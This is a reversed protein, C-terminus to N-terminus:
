AQPNDRIPRPYTTDPDVPPFKDQEMRTALGEILDALEARLQTGYQNLIDTVAVFVLAPMPQGMQGNPSLLAVTAEAQSYTGLSQVRQTLDALSEGQFQIINFM